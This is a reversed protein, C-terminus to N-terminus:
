NAPAPPCGEPAPQGDFVVEGCSNIEHWAYGRGDPLIAIVRDIGYHINEIALFAQAQGDALAAGIADADFCDFWGPANRPEAGPYPAYAKLAEASLDSTFCARYRIPSSDSDIARFGRVPIAVPAGGTIPTLVVDGPGSAAIEEYFAYVQLYYVAAGTALAAVIIVIALIRGM